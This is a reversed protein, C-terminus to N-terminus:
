QNYQYTVEYAMVKRSSRWPCEVVIHIEDRDAKGNRQIYSVSCQVGQRVTDLLMSGVQLTQMDMPLFRCQGPSM